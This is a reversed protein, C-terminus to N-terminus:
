FGIDLGFGKGRNVNREAGRGYKFDFSRGNVQGSVLQNFARDMEKRWPVLTATRDHAILAWSQQAGHIRSTFVGQVHEGDRALHAVRGTDREIRDRISKLEMQALREHWDGVTHFGDHRREGLGMRELLTERQKWADRVEAGFGEYRLQSKDELGDAM